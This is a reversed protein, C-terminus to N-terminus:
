AQVKKSSLCLLLYVTIALGSVIFSLGFVADLITPEVIQLLTTM